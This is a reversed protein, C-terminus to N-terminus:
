NVIIQRYVDDELDGIFSLGLDDNEVRVVIGEVEICTGDALDMTGKVWGKIKIKGRHCFKLGGRSVDKVELKAGRARFTPRKAVPYAIRMHKRKEIGDYETNGM